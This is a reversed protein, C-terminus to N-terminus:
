ATATAATEPHLLTLPILIFLWPDERRVYTAEGKKEGRSVTKPVVCAKKGDPLGFHKAAKEGDQGLFVLDIYKDGPELGYVEKIMPLLEAKGFTTSGQDLVSTLPAGKDDYGVSGFLDAKGAGRPAVNALIVRQPTKFIPFDKSDFVDFASGPTIWKEKKGDPAPESGALPPVETPRAQYELDFREALDTSPFVSGDKWVRITNPHTPNWEKRRGGGGSSPKRMTAPDTVEIKKLFDLDM